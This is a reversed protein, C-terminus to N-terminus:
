VNAPESSLQSKAEIEEGVESETQLADLRQREVRERWNWYQGECPKAGM